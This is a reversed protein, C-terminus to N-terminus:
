IRQGSKESGPQLSVSNPVRNIYRHTNKIFRFGEKKLLEWWESHENRFDNELASLLSTNDVGSFFSQSRKTEEDIKLALVCRFLPQIVFLCEFDHLGCIQDYAIIGAYEVKIEEGTDRDELILQLEPNIEWM